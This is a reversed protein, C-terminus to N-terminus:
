QTKKQKINQQTRKDCQILFGAAAAAVQWYVIKRDSLTRITKPWKKSCMCLLLLKRAEQSFDIAPSNLLKSNM